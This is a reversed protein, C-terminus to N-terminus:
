GSLNQLSEEIMSRTRAALEDTSLTKVTEADIVGLFTLDARVRRFPFQKGIKETGWASMVVVPVGAKKALYFAGAKFEQM